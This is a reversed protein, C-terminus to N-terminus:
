RSRGQLLRERHGKQAWALALRGAGLERMSGRTILLLRCSTLMCSLFANYLVLCVDIANPGATAALDYKGVFLGSHETDGEEYASTHWLQTGFLMDAFGSDPYVFKFTFKIGCTVPEPSTTSNYLWNDMEVFTKASKGPEIPHLYYTGAPCGNGEIVSATLLTGNTYQSGREPEDAFTDQTSPEIIRDALGLVFLLPLLKFLM